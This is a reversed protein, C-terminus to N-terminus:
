EAAERLMYVAATAVSHDLSEARVIRGEKPNLERNAGNETVTCSAFPVLCMFNNVNSLGETITAACRCRMKATASGGRGLKGVVPCGMTVTRPVFKPRAFEDGM